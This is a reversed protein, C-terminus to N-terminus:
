YLLLSLPHVRFQLGSLAGKGGCHLHCLLDAYAHPQLRGLCRQGMVFSVLCCSSICGSACVALFGKRVATTTASSTQTPTLSCAEWAPTTPIVTPKVTDTANTVDFISGHVRGAYDGKVIVYWNGDIVSMANLTNVQVQPHTSLTHPADPDM